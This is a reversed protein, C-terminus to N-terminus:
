GRARGDKRARAQGRPGSGRALIHINVRSCLRRGFAKAKEMNLDIEAIARAVNSGQLLERCNRKPNHLFSSTDFLKKSAHRPPEGECRHERRTGRHRTPVTHTAGRTVRVYAGYERAGRASASRPPSPCVGRM